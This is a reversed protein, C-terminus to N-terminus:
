LTQNAALAILSQLKPPVEMPKFASIDARGSNGKPLRQFVHGIPVLALRMLQGFIEGWQKHHWAFRLMALHSQIHLAYVHQGVIHAACLLDWLTEQHESANPESLKQQYSGLLHQVVRKRQTSTMPKM